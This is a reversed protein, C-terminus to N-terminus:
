KIESLLKINNCIKDYMIVNDYMVNDCMLIYNDRKEILGILDMIIGSKTKLVDKLQIITQNNKGEKKIKERILTEKITCTSLLTNYDNYKSDYKNKLNEVKRKMNDINMKENIMKHVYQINITYNKSLLNYISKRLDTLENHIDHYIEYLIELDFVVLLKKNELVNTTNKIYYYVIENNRTIVCIYSLYMIGLKYKLNEVSYKFRSLQRYISKVNENNKSKVNVFQLERKYNNQLVNEDVKESLNDMSYMEEFKKNDKTYGYEYTVDKTNMVDRIEKLENYNQGRLSVKFKSPIYLLYSIGCKKSVVEIYNCRDHIGYYTKIYFDCGDILKTLNELSISSM